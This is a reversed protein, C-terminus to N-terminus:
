SRKQALHPRPAQEDQESAEKQETLLPGRKGVRAQADRTERSRREKSLEDTALDVQKQALDVAIAPRDSKEREALKEKATKL